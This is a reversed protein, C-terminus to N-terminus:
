LIMSNNGNSSVKLVTWGKVLIDQCLLEGDVCMKTVGQEYMKLNLTVGGMQAERSPCHGGFGLVM